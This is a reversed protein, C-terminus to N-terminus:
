EANLYYKTLLPFDNPRSRIANEVMEVIQEDSLNETQDIEAQHMQQELEQLRANKANFEPGDPLNLLEATLRKHEAELPVRPATLETLLKAEKMLQRRTAPDKAVAIGDATLIPTRLFPFKKEDLEDVRWYDLSDASKFLYGEITTQGAANATLNAKVQDKWLTGAAGPYLNEVTANVLDASRAESAATDRSNKTRGTDHGATGLAVANLDVGVGKERLINGMAISLVFSRTAHTRGHHNVGKDFTREHGHYVPLMALLFQKRQANNQPLAQANAPAPVGVLLRPGAKSPDYPETREMDAAVKPNIQAVFARAFPPLASYHITVDLDGSRTQFGYKNPIRRVLIELFAAATEASGYADADRLDGPDAEPAALMAHHLWRGDPTDLAAAIRALAQEGVRAALRSLAVSAIRGFFSQRDDPGFDELGQARADEIMWEVATKAFAKYCDLIDQATLPAGSRLKAEFADTLKSSAEYIGDFQAQNKLKGASIAWSLFANREGISPFQFFQQQRMIMAKKELFPKVANRRIRAAINELRYDAATFKNNAIDSQIDRIENQIRQRIADAAAGSVPPLGAFAWQMLRPGDEVDKEFTERAIADLDGLARAAAVDLRVVAEAYGIDAPRIRVVEKLIRERRVPDDVHLADMEKLAADLRVLFDSFTKALVKLVDAENQITREVGFTTEIKERMLRDAEEVVWAPLNALGGDFLARVSTFNRGTAYQEAKALLEARREGLLANGHAVLDDKLRGVAESEQARMAGFFAVDDRDRTEYSDYFTVKFPADRTDALIEAKAEEIRARVWDDQKVGQRQEAPLKNFLASFHQDMEETDIRIEEVDEALLVPGHIQAEIYSQGSSVPTRPNEQSRLEAVGFNVATFDAKQALLNEVNDYNAVASRARKKDGYADIFHAFVDESDPARAGEKAQAAFFEGLQKAVIELSQAEFTGRQGFVRFFEDLRGHIRSDPRRMEALAAAPDRLRDAFAAVLREEIEARRAAPMSLKIGFFTDDLAYTCRQKVHPKMVVVVRGYNGGQTDAGGSTYKQTNFAGYVPREGGRVPRDGYEPFFTKEVQDRHQLDGSGLPDRGQLEKSEFTNVLHADPRKFLSLNKKGTRSYGMLAGFKMNVTLEQSRIMDGIKRADTADMGHSKLTGDVKGAAVKSDNSGQASLRTLIGLNVTSMDTSGGYHNATPAGEGVYREMLSPVSAKQDDPTRDLIMRRSIESVVMAEIRCLDAFAKEALSRAAGTADPHNIIRTLEKKLDETQKSILGQYVASLERNDMADVAAFLGKEFLKGAMFAADSVQQGMVPAAPIGATTNPEAVPATRTMTDLKRADIERGIYARFTNLHRLMAALDVKGDTGFKFAALTDAASKAQGAQAKSVKSDYGFGVRSMKDTGLKAVDVAKGGADVSTASGMKEDAFAVLAKITRATLPKGANGEAELHRKLADGLIAGYHQRYAALFADTAAKYTHAGHREQNRTTKLSQGHVYVLKDPNQNAISRFANIDLPM